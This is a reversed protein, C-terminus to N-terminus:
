KVTVNFLIEMNFRDNADGPNSRRYRFSDTGVFGPKSQYFIAVGTVTKGVCQSPQTDGYRNQARIVIDKPETSVTGSAPPALVSIEVQGPRCQKDFRDHTAIQTKVGSQATASVGGQQAAASVCVLCSAIVLLNRGMGAM